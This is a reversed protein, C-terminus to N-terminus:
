QCPNGSFFGTLLFTLNRFGPLRIQAPCRFLFGKAQM